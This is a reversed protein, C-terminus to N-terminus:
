DETMVAVQEPQENPTLMRVERSEVGHRAAAEDILKAARAKQEVVDEFDTDLWSECFDFEDMVGYKMLNEAVKMDRGFDISQKRPKRAGIAWWRPHDPLLGADIKARIFRAGIPRYWSRVLLRHLKIFKRDAEEMDARVAPGTGVMRWVVSFPLGCGRAIHAVTMEMLNLWGDSPVDAKLATVDEGPFVYRILQDGIEEVNAEENGLHDTRTDMGPHSGASSVQMGGSATKNIIAHRSHVKATLVQAATTEQWDRIADLVAHLKTLGRYADVRRGTDKIHAIESRPIIRANEFQGWRARDRLQYGTVRGAADLVCGGVMNGMDVGHDGTRSSGIRDAEILNVGYGIPRGASSMQLRHQGFIDGELFLGQTVVLQTLQAFGHEGRYDISDQEEVFADRYRRDIDPEGTNWRLECRGVVGEAYKDAIAGVLGVNAELDRAESILSERDGLDLSKDRSELRRAPRQRLRNRVAGNYPRGTTAAMVGRGAAKIARGLIGARERLTYRATVERPM